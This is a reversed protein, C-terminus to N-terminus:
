SCDADSLLLLVIWKLYSKKRMMFINLTGEFHGYIYMIDLQGGVMM